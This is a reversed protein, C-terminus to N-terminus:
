GHRGNEQELAARAQEFAAEAAAVDEDTLGAREDPMHANHLPILAQMAIRLAEALREARAEAADRHKMALDATGNAMHWGDRAEAVEARLAEVEADRAATAHAVNARAYAHAEERFESETMFDGQWEPLPLLDPEATM